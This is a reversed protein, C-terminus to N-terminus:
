LFCLRNADKIQCDTTLLQPNEGQPPVGSVKHFKLHGSCCVASYRIDFRRIDFSPKAESLGKKLYVSHMGEVNSM